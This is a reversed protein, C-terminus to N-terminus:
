PNAPKWRNPLLVSLDVTDRKGLAVIVDKLWAWPDVNNLKCSNLLSYLVAARVAGAHSGAFMYNKRGIAVPRIQREIANNDLEYVGSEFIRRVEAEQNLTYKLAKMLPNKPLIETTVKQLYLFLEDLVKKSRTSRLELRAEPTKVGKELKYLEAVYRLTRAVEKQASKEVELFARRIHALCAVRKFSFACILESSGQM